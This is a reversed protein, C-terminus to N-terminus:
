KHAIVSIEVNVNKPLKSVEVCERAPFDTDFYSGYIENVKAFDNLDKLFITTKIVNSFNLGAEELVASLNSMVRKTEAIIDEIELENTEANIAIQGSVYLLDGIMVAQNYPGIPAPAKSTTIIQKKM